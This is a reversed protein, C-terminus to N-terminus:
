ATGLMDALTDFVVRIRRSTHLERHCVLWMPVPIEISPLIREVADDQDGKLTMMLGIGLGARCLAWQVLHSTSMIPFQHPQLHVGFARLGDILTLTRDFALVEAGALDAPSQIPGHRAIWAPSAYLGGTDMRIRRAILAEDKPRGNRLAIDADRRRLNQVANSAILDIEIGPWQSRLHQLVPPLLMEAVVESATISVRGDIASAKGAAVLEGHRAADTMPQLAAHLERGGDTLQLRGSIREFLVVGLAAELARVQRGVTPQTLGLARAAASLSGTRVVTLFARAHNWDLGEDMRFHMGSLRRHAFIQLNLM